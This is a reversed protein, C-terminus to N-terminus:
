NKIVMQKCLIANFLVKQNKLSVGVVPRLCTDIILQIERKNKYSVFNKTAANDKCGGKQRIYKSFFDSEMEGFFLNLNLERNFVRCYTKCIEIKM